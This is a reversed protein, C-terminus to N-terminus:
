LVNKQLVSSFDKMLKRFTSDCQFDRSFNVNPLILARQRGSEGRFEGDFRVNRNPLSPGLASM